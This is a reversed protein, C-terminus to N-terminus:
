NGAHAVHPFARRQIALILRDILFALIAIFILCLYIHERPGRRQSVIIIYGLGLKANIVEALMIYGFALGFLLRLSNVIDPLALPFLVKGIAQHSCVPLWLLTGAAFAGLALLWKGAVFAAAASWWRAAEPAQEAVITAPAMLQSGAVAAIAYGAGIVAAIRLGRKWVPRAGLTYATDLYNGPVARVLGATDFFIFAVTALFIFMVKNTEGLGFWILTLPILAAVPVNRGFISLPRLLADLGGYCGAVVGLPVAVATALLFGGLVRGLSAVASRMLARDFWLGPFSEVTERLSPLTYPDVIRDAPEGMTLVHWVLLLAAIGAAGLLLRELQGPNYRITFRRGLRALFAARAGPQGSAGAPPPPAGPTTPDSGPGASRNPQPPAGPPDTTAPHRHEGPQTAQDPPM